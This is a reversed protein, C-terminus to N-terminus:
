DESITIGESKYFKIFPRQLSLVVFFLPENWAFEIITTTGILTIHIFPVYIPEVSIKRDHHINIGKLSALIFGRDGDWHFPIADKVTDIQVKDQYIKLRAEINPLPRHEEDM